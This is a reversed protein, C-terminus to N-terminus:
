SLGSCSTWGKITRYEIYCWANGAYQKKESTVWGGGQKYSKTATAVPQASAGAVGLSQRAEVYGSAPSFDAVKIIPRCSVPSMEKTPIFAELPHDERPIRRCLPNM